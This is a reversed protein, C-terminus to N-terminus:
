KRRASGIAERRRADGLFAILRSRREPMLLREFRSALVDDAHPNALRRHLAHADSASLGAFLEGLAQEKRRFAADCSERPWPVAELVAVIEADFAPTPAVVEAPAVVETPAVVEPAVVETPISPSRLSSGPSRALMSRATTATSPPVTSAILADQHPAAM